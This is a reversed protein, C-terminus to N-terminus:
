SSWGGGRPVGRGRPGLVGRIARTEVGRRHVFVGGGHRLIKPVVGAHRVEAEVEGWGGGDRADEFPLLGVSRVAKGLIELREEEERISERKTPVGDHAVLCAFEAIQGEIADIPERAHRQIRGREVVAAVRARTSCRVDDRGCARARTPARRSRGAREVEVRRAHAPTASTKTSSADM